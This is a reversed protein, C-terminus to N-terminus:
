QRYVEKTITEHSSGPFEERRELTWEALSLPFYRDAPYRRNWRYLIVGEVKEAWPLLDELEVFCLEGSGAEELFKEGARVNAHAERFQGAAYPSMRLPRGAAERLLDERLLRDQSQRRRNFSMGGREDVCAIVIM